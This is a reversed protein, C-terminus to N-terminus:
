KEYSKVETTYVYFRQYNETCFSLEYDPREVDHVEVFKYHSVPPKKSYDIIKSEFVCLIWLIARIM